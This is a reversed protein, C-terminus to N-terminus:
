SQMRMGCRYQIIVKEAPPTLATQAHRRLNSTWSCPSAAEPKQVLESEHGPPKGEPSVEMPADQVQVDQIMGCAHHM